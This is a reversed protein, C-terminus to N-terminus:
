DYSKRYFIYGALIILAIGILFFQFAYNYHTSLRPTYLLQFHSMNPFHSSVIFHSPQHQSFLRNWTQNQPSSIKQKEILRFPLAKGEINTPAPKQAKKTPGWDYLVLLTKFEPTQFLAFHAYGVQNPQKIQYFSGESHEILQANTRIFAFNSITKQPATLGNFAQFAKQEQKIKDLQWFGLQMMLAGSFLLTITIIAFCIIHACQRFNM